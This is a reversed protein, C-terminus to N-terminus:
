YMVRIPVIMSPESESDEELLVSASSGDLVFEDYLPSPPCFMIFPISLVTPCRKELYFKKDFCKFGLQKETCIMPLSPLTIQNGSINESYFSNM